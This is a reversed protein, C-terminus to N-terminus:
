EAAASTGSTATLTPGWQWAKLPQGSELAHLERLWLKRVLAVGVDSRGLREAARNAVVGQGVQVIDDQIGILDPHDRVDDHTLDGRRFAIGVDRVSMSNIPSNTGRKETRQRQAGGDRHLWVNFGLHSNDDIPTRWAFMDGWEAGPTSPAMRIHLMNPMGIQTIRAGVGQRTATVALGWNTEEAAVQPVGILGGETFASVRHTFAVHVPDCQNEISNFFNCGREYVSTEIRGEGELAAYCPFPPAAGEEGLFAFILGKYEETPYSRIKVTAAFGDHEAPAEVCRGNAGFKWGHYFCRLANGEVWGTSLQTGRHPCFPALVQARGDQGRYVAFDESMIRLPRARGAPLQESLLVPLWFSRLYRGALTGPGTQTVESFDRGIATDSM